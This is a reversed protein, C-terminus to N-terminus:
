NIGNQPLIFPLENNSLNLQKLKKKATDYRYIAVSQFKRQEDVKLQGVTYITYKYNFKGLCKKKRTMLLFPEFLENSKLKYSETAKVEGRILEQITQEKDVSSFFYTQWEIGLKTELGILASVSDNHKLIAELGKMEVVDNGAYEFDIDWSKGVTLIANNREVNDPRGTLYYTYKLQASVTWVFSLVILTLFYKM